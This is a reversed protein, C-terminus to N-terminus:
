RNLDNEATKQSPQNKRQSAFRVWGPCRTMLSEPTLREQTSEREPM